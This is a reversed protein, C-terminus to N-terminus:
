SMRGAMVEEATKLGLITRDGSKDKQLQIGQEEVVKGFARILAQGDRIKV